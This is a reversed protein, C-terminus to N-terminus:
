CRKLQHNRKQTQESKTLFQCNDPEYNGDNDIRDITLNDKYGHSLAFDRFAIYSNKWEDCVKIGRGGYFCYDPNKSNYCRQKIGLWIKYLRTPPKAEGHKVNWKHGIRSKSLNRRHEKSFKRGKLKKSIKQLRIREVKKTKARLM